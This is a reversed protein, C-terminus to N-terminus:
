LSQVWDLWEVVWRFDERVPNVRFLGLFRCDRWRIFAPVFVKWTLLGLFTGDGVFGRWWILVIGNRKGFLWYFRERRITAKGVRVSSLTGHLVTGWPCSFLKPEYRHFLSVPCHWLSNIDRQVHEFLSLAASILITRRPRELFEQFNNQMCSSVLPSVAAPKPEGSLAQNDTVAIFNEASCFDCGM